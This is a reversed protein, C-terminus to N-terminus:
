QKKATQLTATQALIYIAVIQCLWWILHKGGLKTVGECVWQNM